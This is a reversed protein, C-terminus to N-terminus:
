LLLGKTFDTSPILEPVDQYFDSMHEPMLIDSPAVWQTSAMLASDMKIDSLDSSQQLLQVSFVIAFLAISAALGTAIRYRRKSALMRSEAASWTADFDPIAEGIRSDFANRLAKTLDESLDKEAEKNNM